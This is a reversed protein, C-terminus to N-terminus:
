QSACSTQEPGPVVADSSISAASFGLVSAMAEAPQTAMTKLSLHEPVRKCVAWASNFLQLSGQAGWWQALEGPDKWDRGVKFRLEAPELGLCWEDVLLTLLGPGMAVSHRLVLFPESSLWLGAGPLASTTRWHRSALRLGLGGGWSSTMSMLKPCQSGSTELYRTLARLM